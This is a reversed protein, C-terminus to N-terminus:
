GASIHTDLCEEQCGIVHISVLVYRSYLYPVIKWNSVWNEYIKFVYKKRRHAEKVTFSMQMHCCLGKFFSSNELIAWTMM